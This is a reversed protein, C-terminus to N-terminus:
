FVSRRALSAGSAAPERRRRTSASRGFGAFNGDDDGGGDGGSADDDDSDLLMTSTRAAGRKKRGGTGSPTAADDSDEVLAAPRKRARAAATSAPPARSRGHRRELMTTMDAEDESDMSDLDDLGLDIATEEVSTPDLAVRGRTKGSRSTAASESQENLTMKGRWTVSAEATPVSQGDPDQWYSQGLGYDNSEPLVLAIQPRQSGSASPRPAPKAVGKPRFKKFNPVGTGQPTQSRDKDKKQRVLPVFDVQVFNGRVHIRLEEEAMQKFAEYDEDVVSEHATRQSQATTRPKAIQLRNFEADFEDMKKGRARQTNLAQLFQPESDPPAGQSLGTEHSPDNRVLRAPEPPQIQAAAQNSNHEPDHSTTRMRKSAPSQADVDQNPNSDSERRPPPTKRKHGNGDVAPDATQRAESGQTQVISESQARDEEDLDM